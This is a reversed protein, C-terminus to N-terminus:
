NEAVGAVPISDKATLARKLEPGVREVLPIGPDEGVYQQLIKGDKGILIYTPIATAGYQRILQHNVDRRQTWNMQHQAIFEQWKGEDEDESISIVEFEDDHYVAQLQKLEPLAQRCPGCWSAWFDLLTVKGSGTSGQGSADPAKEGASLPARPMNDDDFIKVAKLQSSKKARLQRAVEGLSKPQEPQTANDPANAQANQQPPQAQPANKAATQSGQKFADQAIGLGSFALILIGAATVWSKKRM